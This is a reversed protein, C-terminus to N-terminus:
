RRGAARPRDLAAHIIAERDGRNLAAEIAEDSQAGIRGLIALAAWAHGLSKWRAMEVLPTQAERRLSELLAPDRRAAIGMLAASAKNRDTWDLSHLLAVFPKGPIRVSSHGARPSMRAFVGLTRMANNRVDASSDSM